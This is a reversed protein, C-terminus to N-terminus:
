ATKKAQDWAKHDEQTKKARTVILFADRRAKGSVAHGSGERPTTTRHAERYAKQYARQYAKRKDTQEYARSAAKGEDSQKYAKHAAKRKDTQEYAKRIAKQYAKRAEKLNADPTKM